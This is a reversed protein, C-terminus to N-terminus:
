FRSSVSTPAATAVDEDSLLRGLVPHVGLMEYYRPTVVEISRMVIGRGHIETQILGGGTYACVSEFSARRAVELSTTLPIQSARGRRDLVSIAVLREPDPADVPRLVLAILLSLAASTVGMGLTLTAIVLLAFGPTRRVQRVAYRLDELIQNM